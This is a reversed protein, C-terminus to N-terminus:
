EALIRSRGIAYLSCVILHLQWFLVGLLLSSHFVAPVSVLLFKVFIEPHILCSLVIWDMGHSSPAQITAHRTVESARASISCTTIRSYDSLM